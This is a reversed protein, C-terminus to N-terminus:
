EVTGYGRGFNPRHQPGDRAEEKLKKQIRRKRLTEQGFGKNATGKPVKNNEEIQDLYKCGTLQPSLIQELCHRYKM